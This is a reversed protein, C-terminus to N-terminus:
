NQDFSGCNTPCREYSVGMKYDAKIVGPSTEKNIPIEKGTQDVGTIIIKMKGKGKEQARYVRLGRVKPDALLQNILERSFYNSSSNSSYDRKYRKVDEIANDRDSESGILTGANPDFPAPVVNMTSDVEAQETQTEDASISTNESSQDTPKPKSECGFLGGAGVIFIFL